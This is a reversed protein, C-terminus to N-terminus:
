LWFYFYLYPLNLPVVDSHIGHQFVGFTHSNERVKKENKFSSNRRGIWWQWVMWYICKCGQFFTTTKTGFGIKPPECNVKILLQKLDISLFLSRYFGQNHTAKTDIWRWFGTLKESIWPGQFYPTIINQYRNM